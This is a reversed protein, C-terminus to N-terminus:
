WGNRVVAQIEKEDVIQQVIAIVQKRSHCYGIDSCKLLFNLLEEEEESSLYNYSSPGSKAGFIVKGPVRDHLTSKPVQYIESTKRLSMGDEVAAAAKEM